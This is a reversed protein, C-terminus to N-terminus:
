ERFYEVYYHLALLEMDAVCYNKESKSLSHRAYPIVRQWADQVQSLVASIGTDQIVEGEHMPDAMIYPGILEQRVTDFAKHLHLRSTKEQSNLWPDYEAQIAQWSM